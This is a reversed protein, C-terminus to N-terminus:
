TKYLPELESIDNKIQETQQQKHQKFAQFLKDGQWQSADSGYLVTNLANIEAALETALNKAIDALSNINHEPWRVKAWSLLADKAKSADNSNCHQQVAKELPRLSTKEQKPKITETVPKKRFLAVLTLLWSTKPTSNKSVKGPVVM